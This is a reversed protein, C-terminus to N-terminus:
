LFYEVKQSPRGYFGAFMGPAQGDDQMGNVGKGVVTDEDNEPSAEFVNFYQGTFVGQENARGDSSTDTVELVSAKNGCRYCYNPALWVTLCKGGWYSVYGENCLQHARVLQALGNDHCFKNMVDAGFLYGAGRPSLKFDLIEPDPDSWVLDAM